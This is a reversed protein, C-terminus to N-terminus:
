VTMEQLNNRATRNILGTSVRREVFVVNELLGNRKPLHIVAIWRPFHGRKKRHRNGTKGSVKM